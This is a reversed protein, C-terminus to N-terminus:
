GQVVAVRELPRRPRRAEGRPARPSPSAGSGAPRVGIEWLLERLGLFARLVARAEEEGAARQEWRAIEQDLAEALAPGIESGLGGGQALRQRTGSIWADAGAFLPHAAARGGTTAISAADLLARGAELAEALARLAHQRARALAESAAEDAREPDDGPEPRLPSV